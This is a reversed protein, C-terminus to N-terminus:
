FPPPESNNDWQGAPQSQEAWPDAQPAYQGRSQQRGQPRQQGSQKTARVAVAVTDARLELNTYTKGDRGESTKLQERGIVVVRDGKRVREAVEEADEGWVSVRRWTTGQDIWENTQKDYYGHGEALNFKAVAKGGQTFRVEPDQGVNGVYTNTNAM